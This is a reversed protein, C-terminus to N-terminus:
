NAMVMQYENNFHRVQLNCAVPPFGFLRRLKNAYRINQISYNGLTQTANQRDEGFTALKCLWDIMVEPLVAEVEPSVSINTITM